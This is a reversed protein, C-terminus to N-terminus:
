LQLQCSNPTPIQKALRGPVRQEILGRHTRVLQSSYTSPIHATDSAPQGGAFVLFGDWSCSVHINWALVAAVVTPSLSTVSWRCRCALPPLAPGVACHHTVPSFIRPCPVPRSPVLLPLATCQPFCHSPSGVPNTDTQRGAADRCAGTALLLHVLGLPTPCCCWHLMRLVVLVPRDVTWGAPAPRCRLGTARLPAGDM